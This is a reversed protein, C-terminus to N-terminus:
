MKYGLTLEMHIRSKTDEAEKKKQLPDPAQGIKDLSHFEVLSQKNEAAFREAGLQNIKDRQSNLATIVSVNRFQKEALKPQEPRRGAVRSKLFKIDESTCAAYRMNELATRLKADEPSQHKQRMNQRLIVVTTIQHWLAKGIASEQGMNDLGSTLQTGVSGSYLSAGNVPPLQAFDGAFVVNIGGFPVDFINKAKALQSSIKYLEHCAVM